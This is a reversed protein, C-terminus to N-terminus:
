HQNNARKLTLVPVEYDEPKNGRASHGYIHPGPGIHLEALPLTAREVPQHHNGGKGTWDTMVVPHQRDGLTIPCGSLPDVNEYLPSPPTTFLHTDDHIEDRNALHSGHPCVPAIASTQRYHDYRNSAGIIVPAPDVNRLMQSTKGIQKSTVHGSPTASSTTPTDLHVSNKASWSSAIVNDYIHMSETDSTDITSSNNCNPTPNYQTDYCANPQLAISNDDTSNYGIEIDTLQFSTETIDQGKMKQASASNDARLIDDTSERNVAKSSFSKTRIIKRKQM